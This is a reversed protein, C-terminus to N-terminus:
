YVFNEKLFKGIEEYSVLKYPVEILRMNHNEAYEKKRRDHEKLKNFYKSSIKPVEYLAAIQKSLNQSNINLLEFIKQPETLNLLELFIKIQSIIIDIVSNMFHINNESLNPSLILKLTNYSSLLNNLIAKPNIKPIQDNVNKSM